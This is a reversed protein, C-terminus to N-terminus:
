FRIQKRCYLDFDCKHPRLFLIKAKLEADQYPGVNIKAENIYFLASDLNTKYFENARKLLSEIQKRKDPGLINDANDQSFSYGSFLIFTLFFLRGLM